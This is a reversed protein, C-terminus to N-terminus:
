ATRRELFAIADAWCRCVVAAQKEIEALTGEVLAQEFLGDQEHLQHLADRDAFGLDMITWRSKFPRAADQVAELWKRVQPDRLRAARRRQRDSAQSLMNQEFQRLESTIKM